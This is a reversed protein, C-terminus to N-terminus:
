KRPSEMHKTRSQENDNETENKDMGAEKRFIKKQYHQVKKWKFKNITHM